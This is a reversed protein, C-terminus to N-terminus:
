LRFIRPAMCPDSLLAQVVSRRNAIRFPWAALGARTLDAADEARRMWGYAEALEALIDAAAEPTFPEVGAHICETSHQAYFDASEREDM